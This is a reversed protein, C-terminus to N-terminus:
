TDANVAGMPKTLVDMRVIYDHESASEYRRGDDGILIKPRSGVTVRRGNVVKFIWGERAPPLPPHGVIVQDHESVVRDLELTLPVICMDITKPTVEFVRMEVTWQEIGNEGVRM